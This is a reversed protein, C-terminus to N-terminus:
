QISKIGQKAANQKENETQTKTWIHENKYHKKIIFCLGINSTKDKNKYFLFIIHEKSDINRKSSIPQKRSLNM